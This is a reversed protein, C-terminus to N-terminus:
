RGWTTQQKKHARSAEEDNNSVSAVIYVCSPLVAEVLRQTYVGVHRLNSALEAWPKPGRSRGRTRAQMGGGRRKNQKGLRWTYCRRAIFTMSGMDPIQCLFM